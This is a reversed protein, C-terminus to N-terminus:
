AARSLKGHGFSRNVRGVNAVVGVSLDDLM